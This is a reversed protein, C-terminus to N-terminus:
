NEEIKIADVPCGDKADMVDDTFEDPVVDVKVDMIGDDGYEFVDSCIAQCAGCGINCGIVININKITDKICKIVM